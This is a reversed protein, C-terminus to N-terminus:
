HWLLIYEQYWWLKLIAPLACPFAFSSGKCHHVRFLVDYVYDQTYVCDLYLVEKSVQNVNLAHGWLFM